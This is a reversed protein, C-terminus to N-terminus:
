AFFLILVEEFKIDDWYELALSHSLKDLCM